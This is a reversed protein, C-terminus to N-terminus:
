YENKWKKELLEEKENNNKFKRINTLFLDSVDSYDLPDIKKKFNLELVVRNDPISYLMYYIITSTNTKSNVLAKDCYYDGCFDSLILNNLRFIEKYKNYTTDDNKIFNITIRITDFRNSYLCFRNNTEKQKPACESSPFTDIPLRIVYGNSTNPPAICFRGNRIIFTSDNRSSFISCSFLSLLFVIIMCQKSLYMKNMKGGTNLIGFSLIPSFVM